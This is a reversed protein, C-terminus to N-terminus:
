KQSHMRAIKHWHPIKLAKMRSLLIDMQIGAFNHGVIVDPDITHIRAILAWM